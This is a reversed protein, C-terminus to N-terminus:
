PVYTQVEVEWRGMNKRGLLNVEFDFRWHSLKGKLKRGGGFVVYSRKGKKVKGIVFSIKETTKKINKNKHKYIDVVFNVFGGM